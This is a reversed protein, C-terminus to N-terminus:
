FIDSDGMTIFWDQSELIPTGPATEDLVRFGFFTESTERTYGLSRLVRDLLVDRPYWCSVARVSADRFYRFGASLLAFVVDESSEGVLDVIHGVPPSDARFIKFIAYGLLKGDADRALFSEYHVDPNDRFRWNLYSSSRRVAIRRAPKTEKWLDDLERSFTHVAQTWISEAEPLASPAGELVTRHGKDTWGLKKVFGRHSYKNPFGYVFEYGREAAERYAESALLTFLGRGRFDPHTMTTMSFMARTRRGMVDFVTPITAYHGALSDGDWVLKIMGEGSPNDVFRWKWFELSMSKGFVLEFLDLIASEDGENYDRVEHRGGTM